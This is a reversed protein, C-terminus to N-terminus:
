EMDFLSRAKTLQYVIHTSDCQVLMKWKEVHQEKGAEM